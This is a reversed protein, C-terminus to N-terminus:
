FAETCWSLTVPLGNCFARGKQVSKLVEKREAQLM